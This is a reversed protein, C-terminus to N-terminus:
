SALEVNGVGTRQWRCTMSVVSQSPQFQMGRRVALTTNLSCRALLLILAHMPGGLLMPAALGDM